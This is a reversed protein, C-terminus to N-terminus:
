EGIIPHKISFPFLGVKAHGYEALSRHEPAPFLCFILLQALRKKLIRKM